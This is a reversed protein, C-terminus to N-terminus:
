EEEEFFVGFTFWQYWYRRIVEELVDKWEGICRELDAQRDRGSRRCEIPRSAIVAYRRRGERAIFLPFVPAGTAMALAFPGSPIATRRGFLTTPHGAVGPIVRDGQIAVIEGGQLAHVLDLALMSSSASYHVRFGGRGAQERSRAAFEESADDAEPARVITIPREAKEAFLYSGLDYNGMHATLLIAGGETAALQRFWEAGEFEWDLQPRHRAFRASDTMTWAFNLFVRWTRALNVLRSSGPLIVGLNRTVARRGPPWVLYFFTTYVWITLPELFHPVNDVAWYQYQRWFVGRIVLRSRLRRFIM